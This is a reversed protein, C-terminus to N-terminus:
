PLVPPPPDPVPPPTPPASESVSPDVRARTLRRLRGDRTVVVVSPGDSGPSAVALPPLSPEADLAIAPQLRGTGIDVVHLAASVGAVILEGGLLVPGGIPRTPLGAKWRQAGNVRDLARVVNDLSVFYVRRDDVEPVGIVDGGTRWRWRIRGDRGDLAYLFNDRSGVFVRDLDVRLATTPAPLRRRWLLRGSTTEVLVVEGESLAALFRDNVVPSVLDPTGGLTQTWAMTGSARDLARVEGSRLVGIVHPGSVLPAAALAAPLPARWTREGTVAALAEIADVTAVYVAGASAAPGVETPAATTWRVAGTDTAVAVVQGTKLSVFVSSQDATAPAVAFGGLATTWTVSWPSPQPAATTAV